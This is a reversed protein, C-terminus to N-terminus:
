DIFYNKKMNRSELYNYFVNRIGVSVVADHADFSLKRYLVASQL